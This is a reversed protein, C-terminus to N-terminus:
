SFKLGDSLVSFSFPPLSLLESEFSFLCVFVEFWVIRLCTTNRLMSCVDVEWVVSILHMQSFEWLLTQAFLLISKTSIKEGLFKWMNELAPRTTVDVYYSGTLARFPILPFVLVM